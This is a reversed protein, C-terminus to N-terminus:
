GALMLTMEPLPNAAGLKQIQTRSRAGGPAQPARTFIPVSSSRPVAFTLM